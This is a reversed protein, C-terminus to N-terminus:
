RGTALELRAAKNIAVVGTAMDHLSQGYRSTMMMVVSFLQPLVMTKFFLFLATHWLATASDLREGSLTRLEVSFLRMGPTASWASITLWRYLLSITLSLFGLIFLATFATMVVAIMTLGAIIVADVVWALIRKVVLDDYFESQYEPDPLNAYAM